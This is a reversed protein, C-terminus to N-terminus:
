TVVKCVVTTDLLVRMHKSIVTSKSESAVQRLSTLKTVPEHHSASKEVLKLEPLMDKLAAAAVAAQVHIM